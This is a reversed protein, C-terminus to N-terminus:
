NIVVELYKTKNGEVVNASINDEKDIVVAMLEM